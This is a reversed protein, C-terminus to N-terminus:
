LFLLKRMEQAYLTNEEALCMEKYPTLDVQQEWFRAAFLQLYMRYEEQARPNRWLLKITYADNPIGNHLYPIGNRIVKWLGDFFLELGLLVIYEGGSFLLMASCVCTLANLLVGGLNYALYQPPKRGDPCMVCQGHRQSTLTVSLKGTSSATISLVGLQLYVLRYGSFLGGLLHGTEHLLLNLLRVLLYFGLLALIAAYFPAPGRYLVILLVALCGAFFLLRVNKM